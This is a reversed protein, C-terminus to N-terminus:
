EAILGTATFLKIRANPMGEGSVYEFEPPVPSVRRYERERAREPDQKSTYAFRLPLKKLRRKTGGRGTPTRQQAEAYVTEATAAWVGRGGGAPAVAYYTFGLTRFAERLGEPVRTELVDDGRVGKELLKALLVAVFQTKRAATLKRPFAPEYTIEWTSGARVFTAQAYRTQGVYLTGTITGGSRREAKVRLNAATGKPRGHTKEETPQM